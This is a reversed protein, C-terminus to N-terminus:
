AIIRFKRILKVVGIKHSSFYSSVGVVHSADFTGCHGTFIAAVSYNEGLKRPSNIAASYDRMRRLLRVYSFEANEASLTRPGGGAVVFREPLSAVSEKQLWDKINAWFADLVATKQPTNGLALFTSFDVSFIELHLWENLVAETEIQAESPFLEKSKPFGTNRSERLIQALKGGLEAGSLKPKLFSFM